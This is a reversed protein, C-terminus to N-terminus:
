VPHCCGCLGSTSAGCILCDVGDCPNGVVVFGGGGGDVGFGGGGLPNRPKDTSPQASPSASPALSPTASPVTDVCAVVRVNDIGVSEDAVGALTWAITVKLNDGMDSYLDSGLETVVHHKQDQFRMDFGQPSQAIPTSDVTWELSGVSGSRTDEQITYDFGGFNAAVTAGETTSEIEIGLTDPGNGVGDWSDIEYFDFSVFIRQSATPIAFDKYPFKTTTSDFRGLFTTFSEIETYDVAWNHWGTAVGSGDDFDDFSVLIEVETDPCQPPYTPTASPGSTESQDDPPLDLECTKGDGTYGSLCTCMYSFTFPTHICAAHVDCDNLSADLCQNYDLCAIPGHVDSILGDIVGKSEDCGCKYGQLAATTPNPDHVFTNVCFGGSETSPCPYDDGTLLCENQDTCETLGDGIYGDKCVCTFSGGEM